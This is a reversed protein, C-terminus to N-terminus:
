GGSGNPVTGPTQAGSQKVCRRHLCLATRRGDPRPPERSHRWRVPPVAPAGCVPM